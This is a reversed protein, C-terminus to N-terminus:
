RVDQVVLGVGLRSGDWGVFCDERVALCYVQFCFTLIM